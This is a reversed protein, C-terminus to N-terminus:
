PASPIIGEDAARDEETATSLCGQGHSSEWWPAAGEWLVTKHPSNLTVNFIHLSRIQANGLPEHSM